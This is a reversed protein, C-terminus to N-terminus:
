LQGLYKHTQPIVRVHQLYDLALNQIDLVRKADPAVVTNGAVPTVPQLVLPIAPNIDKILAAAQRIENDTTRGTVVVKVFVAKQNAVGLFERHRDGFDGCLTATPLKIDMSVIDVLAIVEQLKDPLTGNTELYVPLGTTRVLPLLEKLYFASMLPEGGTLSISHHKRPVLQRIIDMTDGPTLPNGFQRFVGSGPVTEVSCYPTGDVPTDCYRCSLNCGALRLFIQRAGVYIGEGQISSFIEIIDAPM